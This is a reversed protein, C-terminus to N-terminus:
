AHKLGAISGKVKSFDLNKSKAKYSVLYDLLQGNRLVPVNSSDPMSVNAENNSFLVVGQIWARSNKKKMDESLLWVLQKVQSIPNRMTKSYATGGRGMKNVRWEKDSESGVISGNNNKVEVIFIAEPGVVIIDAENYGTKSKPNPINVQNFITFTDPLHRLLRITNDEGEAGARLAQDGNQQAWALLTFLFIILSLFPQIFLSGLFLLGGWIFISKRSSRKQENAEATLKNETVYEMNAM